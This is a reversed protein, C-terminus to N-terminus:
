PVPPIDCTMWAKERDVECNKRGKWRVQEFKVKDATATKNDKDQRRARPPAHPKRSPVLLGSAIDFVRSRISLM